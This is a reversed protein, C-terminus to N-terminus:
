EDAESKANVERKTAAMLAEAAELRKTEPWCPHWRRFEAVIDNRAKEVASAAALLRIQDANSM